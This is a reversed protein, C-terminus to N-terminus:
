THFYKNNSDFWKQWQTRLHDKVSDDAFIADISQFSAKYLQTNTMSFAKAAQIYEDSLDARFVGKDDTQLLPM